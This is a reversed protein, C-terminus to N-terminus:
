NHCGTDPVNWGPDEVFLILLMVALDLEKM